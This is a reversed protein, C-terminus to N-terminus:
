MVEHWLELLDIEETLYSSIYESAKPLMSHGYWGYQFWSIAWYRYESPELHAQNELSLRGLESIMVKSM